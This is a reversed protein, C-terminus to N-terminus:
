SIITFFYAFDHMGIALAVESVPMTTTNFYFIAKEIRVQHIYETITMGVEKSFSTSLTSANKEVLAALTRLSLEEELHLHIHSIVIRIHRSYNPLSYNKVLLCYKHCIDKAIFLTQKSDTLSLIRQLFSDYLKIIYSPHITAVTAIHIENTKLSRHLHVAQM